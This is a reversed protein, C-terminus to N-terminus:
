LNTLITGQLLNQRRFNSDWIVISNKQSIMVIMSESFEKLYAFIQLCISIEGLITIM